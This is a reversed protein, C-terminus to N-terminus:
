LARNVPLLCSFPLPPPGLRGSGPCARLSRVPSLSLSSLFWPRRLQPFFTRGFIARPYPPLNRLTSKEHRNSQSKPAGPPRWRGGDTFTKESSLAPPRRPPPSAALSGGCGGAQRLKTPKAGCSRGIKKELESALRGGRKEGGRLGVWEEQRHAAANGEQREAKVVRRRGWLHRLHGEGGPRGGSGSTSVMEDRYEKVGRVLNELFFLPSKLWKVSFSPLSAALCPSFKLFWGTLVKKM